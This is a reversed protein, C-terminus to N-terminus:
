PKKSAPQYVTYHIPEGDVWNFAVPDVAVMTSSKASGKAVPADARVFGLAPLALAIALIVLSRNMSMSHKKM